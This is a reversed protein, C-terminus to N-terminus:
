KNKEQRSAGSSDLVTPLSRNQNRKSERRAKPTTPDSELSCIVVVSKQM